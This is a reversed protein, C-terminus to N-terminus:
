SVRTSSASSRTSRAPEGSAARRAASAPHRSVSLTLDREARRASPDVGAPDIARPESHARPASTTAEPADSGSEARESGTDTERPTWSTDSAAPATARRRRQRPRRSAWYTVDVLGLMMILDGFSLVTEGPERLVITDSLFALREGPEQAHHKVTTEVGGDRQWDAPVDVPMGQNLTIVLANCAVGVLVVGMGRKLLNGACFGLVLVYSAVLVGFGVDHWREEPLALADLAAQLGFGFALLPFARWGETLRAYSGRTLAPVLLAALVAIFMVDLVVPM